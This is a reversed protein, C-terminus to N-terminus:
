RTLKQGRKSLLKRPSQKPVPSLALNLKLQAKAKTLKIRRQLSTQKILELLIFSRPMEM